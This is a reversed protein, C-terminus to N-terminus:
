RMKQIFELLVQKEGVFIGVGVKYKQLIGHRWKVVEKTEL